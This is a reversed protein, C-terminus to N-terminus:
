HLAPVNRAFERAAAQDFDMSAFMSKLEAPKSIYYDGAELPPVNRDLENSMARRKIRRLLFERPQRFAETAGISIAIGLIVGVAGAGSAIGALGVGVALSGDLWREWFRREVYESFTEAIRRQYDNAADNAERLVEDLKANDCSFITELSHIYRNKAQGIDTAPNLIKDFIVGRDLPISKPVRVIPIRPLVDDYRADFATETALYRDFGPGVHTDVSIPWPAEPQLCMGFNYHYCQNAVRMLEVASARPNASHAPVVETVAKEFKDRPGGDGPKKDMFADRVRKLCADSTDRLDLQAASLELAPGILNMYGAHIKRPPWQVINSERFLSRAVTKLCPQLDNWETSQVLREFSANKQAAMRLPMDALADATPERSLVRIFNSSRMMVRLTSDERMFERRVSPHNVLYGDNLLIGGSFFINKAIMRNFFEQDVDDGLYRQVADDLLGSYTYPLEKQELSNGM